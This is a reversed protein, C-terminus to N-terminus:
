KERVCRVAYADRLLTADRGYTNIVNGSSSSTKYADTKLYCAYTKGDDGVFSEAAWWYGGKGNNKKEYGLYGDRVVIDAYQTGETDDANKQFYWTNTLHKVFNIYDLRAVVISNGENPETVDATTGSPMDTFGSFTFINAVRYGVPSPDYITKQQEWGAGASPDTLKEPLKRKGDGWLYVNTKGLWNHQASQSTGAILYMPNRVADEITADDKQLKYAWGKLNDISTLTTGDLFFRSGQIDCSPFPDKRGWQYLLPDDYRGPSSAGLERDMVLFKAGAQNTYEEDEPMGQTGWIHWSWLIDGQCDPESYVAIVANGSITGDTFAVSEPVTYYVRGNELRVDTVFGKKDSWLVKASKPNIYPNETHFGAGPIIGKPGNGIVTAKLSYEGAKTVIYCNATEELEEEPIPAIVAANTKLVEATLPVTYYKGAEFDCLATTKFTGEQRDTVFDCTWDEGEHKGPAVVAYATITERATPPVAFRITLGDNTEGSSSLGADLNALSYTFDGTMPEGGDTPRITVALLLEDDALDPVGSLDVQFRVLAAMQRMAMRYGGNANATISNSAKFDYQAVSTEDRYMQEAPITVPIKTLDTVEADYPYFAYRPEGSGTLTGTFTTSTAPETNTSTFVSPQGDESFVGLTDGVSWEITLAGDDAIDGVQTRTAALATFTDAEGTISVQRSNNQSTVNDEIESCATVCLVACCACCLAKITEKM